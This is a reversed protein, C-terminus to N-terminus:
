GFYKSVKLGMHEKCIEKHVKTLAYKAKEPDLCKVLPMNFSRKYLIGNIFTIMAERLKM